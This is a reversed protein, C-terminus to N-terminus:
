RGPEPSEDALSRGTLKNIVVKISAIEECNFIWALLLYILVSVLVAIITQTFVGWFRHMDVFIAAVLKVEQLAVAMIISALFVKCTFFIISLEPMKIKTRIILYLVVANIFSSLSYAVALGTIGMIPSLLKGAIIAIIISIVTVVTPTKTDHFAYFSRALLPIISTFVLALAFFGLTNATDITQGWGFYGSGLIIRVIQARLMIVIFTIPVM